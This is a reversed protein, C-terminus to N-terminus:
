AENNLIRALLGRRRLREVEGQLNRITDVYKAQAREDLDCMVDDLNKITDTERDIVRVNNADTLIDREKRMRYNERRLRSLEQTLSGFEALSITVTNATNDYIKQTETKEKWDSM